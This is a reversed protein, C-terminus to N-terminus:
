RNKQSSKKNAEKAMQTQEVATKALKPTSEYTRNPDAVLNHWDGQIVYKSNVSGSWGEPSVFQVVTFSIQFEPSYVFREHRRNILSVYGVAEFRPHPGKLNYEGEVGRKYISLRAITAYPMQGDRVSEVVKGYYLPNPAQCTLVIDSQRFNKPYFVAGGASQHTEGNLNFDINMDSVFLPIGQSAGDFSLNANHKGDLTTKSQKAFEAEYGSGYAAFPDIKNSRSVFDSYNAEILRASNIADTTLPQRTSPVSPSTNPTTTPTVTTKPVDDLADQVVGTVSGFVNGLFSKRNKQPATKKTAM